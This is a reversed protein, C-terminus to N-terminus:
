CRELLMGLGLSVGDILMFGEGDDLKIWGDGAAAGNVVTGANIGRNSLHSPPACMRCQGQRKAGAIAAGASPQARVAVRVCRLMVVCQATPLMGIIPSRPGHVVKWLESHGATCQSTVIGANLVNCFNIAV